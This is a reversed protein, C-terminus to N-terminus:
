TGPPWNDPLARVVRFSCSCCEWFLLSHVGCFVLRPSSSAKLSPSLLHTLYWHAVHNVGLCGALGDQTSPASGMGVGANLILIDLRPFSGAFSKAFSEVSGLSSLDLEMFTIRQSPSTLERLHKLLEPGREKRGALVLHGVGMGAFQEAAALGIGTAPGTVLVIKERWPELKAGDVPNGAKQRVAWALLFVGLVAYLPRKKKVALVILVLAPFPPLCAKLESFYRFVLPNFLQLAELYVM